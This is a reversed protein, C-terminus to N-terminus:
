RGARSTGFKDPSPGAVAGAHLDIAHKNPGAKVALKRVVPEGSKESWVRVTYNGPVLSKFAFTGDDDVVVYHPADVVVVYASM